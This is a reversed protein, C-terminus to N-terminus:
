GSVDSIEDSPKFFLRFITGKGLESEVQIHGHHSEMIGYIVSLGMGTGKVLGKTTFFPDFIHDITEPDIGEGTDGISLVVWNGRILKKTM